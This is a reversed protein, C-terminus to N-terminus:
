VQPRQLLESPAGEMNEAQHDERNKQTFSMRRRRLIYLAVGIALVLVLLVPIIVIKKTDNMKDTGLPSSQNHCNQKEEKKGDKVYSVTCCIGVERTEDTLKFTDQLKKAFKETESKPFPKIAYIKRHKDMWVITSNYTNQMDVECTLNDKGLSLKPECVGTVMLHFTHPNLLTHEYYLAYLGQDEFTVSRVNLTMRRRGEELRVCYKRDETCQLDQTENILTKETGSIGYIKLGAIKNEENTPIELDEGCDKTIIEASFVSMSVLFIFLVLSSGSIM